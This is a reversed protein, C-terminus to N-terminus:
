LYRVEYKSLDLLNFTEDWVPSKVNFQPITEYPPFSSFSLRFILLHVKDRIVVNMTFQPEFGNCCIM